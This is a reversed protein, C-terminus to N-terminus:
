FTHKLGVYLTEGDQGIGTNSGINVYTGFEDNRMISLIFMLQSQKSLNHFYGGSFLQAGTGRADCSTGVRECSAELAKGYEAGVYGGPLNYKAAVWWADREYQNVDGAAMGDLEYTLREFRLRLSLDGLAYSGGIQFGTDSSGTANAANVNGAILQLGMLDNHRELAVDVSFPMGEPAYKAGISLIQPNITNGAAGASKLAPLSYDVEFDIGGWNPSTYWINNETRRYFDVCGATPTYAAAIRGGPAGTPACTLPLSGNIGSEFVQGAGPTGLLNLNGGSGAAGDLPDAQYMFREYVNENVGWKVAGWDGIVGLFSNRNRINNTQSLAGSTGSFDFQYHFVVKNGNGIDDVSEIDFHSYTSHLFSGTTGQPQAPNVGTVDNTPGAAAGDKSRGSSPGMNIAGSLTVDATAVPAAFAGAVALAILGSKTAINRKM